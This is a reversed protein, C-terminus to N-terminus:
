RLQHIFYGFAELRKKVKYLNKSPILVHYGEAKLILKQMIEDRAMLEILEPHEKLRFVLLDPEPILPDIKDLIDNLFDEWIRPPKASVQKKFLKIRGEIEKLTVCSKLFSGSTVKYCNESIKDAFRELLIAKLRDKGDLNILLRKDDLVFNASEMEAKFAYDKTLGTIYAGLPTLRIYQLGDFASLYEMEKKQIRENKPYNYAIDVIGFVAMLFLFGKFFPALLAEQYIAASIEATRYIGFRNGDEYRIDVSLYRAAVSRDVIDLDVERYHCYDLLKSVSYWLGPQLARLLSRLSTRVVQESKRLSQEYYGNQIYSIGKLHSLLRDLRYGGHPAVKMFFDDFVQKLFEPADQTERIPCHQLFDILLGTNLHELHAKGGTYFERIHCYAAVEKASTKLIRASNKSFKLGGQAIYAGILHIQRLIRSGDEYIFDTKEITELGKLYYGEPPPLYKKLLDRVPDPLYLITTYSDYSAFSRYSYNKQIPIISYCPNFTEITRTRGHWTEKSPVLIPPDLPDTFSQALHGGKEWTLRNLVQIVGQPLLLILKDFLYQQSFVQALAWVLQRKKLKGVAVQGMDQFDTEQFVPNLYRSYVAKLRDIPYCDIIATELFSLEDPIPTATSQETAFISQQEPPSLINATASFKAMGTLNAEKVVEKLLNRAWLSKQSSVIRIIKERVDPLPHKVADELLKQVSKDDPGIIAACLVINYYFQWPHLTDRQELLIPLISKGVQVAANLALQRVLLNLPHEELCGLNLVLLRHMATVDATKQKEALRVAEAYRSLTTLRWRLSEDGSLSRIFRSYHWVAIEQNEAFKRYVAQACHICVRGDPTECSFEQINKSCATCRRGADDWNGAHDFVAM